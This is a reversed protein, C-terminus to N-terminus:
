KKAAAGFPLLAVVAVAVRWDIGWKDLQHGITVMSRSIPGALAVLSGIMM